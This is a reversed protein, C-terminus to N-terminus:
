TARRGGWVAAWWQASTAPGPGAEPDGAPPFAVMLATWVAHCVLSALVGRTWMALAGWVAGSVVAGALIPLSRSAANAAVYAAWALFAALVWGHAQALRGQFLGRWFLEEGSATLVSALFLALGLSLGRRQDYVEAVHRDFVPWRRVIVVFAVTALYLAVGTGLGALVAWWWSLRPSLGVRGTALAALGATGSVTGLAAWVSVKRAAVLAWAVAVGIAGLAMIAVIM